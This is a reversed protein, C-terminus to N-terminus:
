RQLIFLPPRTDRPDTPEVHADMLMEAGSATTRVDVFDFAAIRRNGPVPRESNVIGFTRGGIGYNKYYELSIGYLHDAPNAPEIHLSYRTASTGSLCVPSFIDIETSM